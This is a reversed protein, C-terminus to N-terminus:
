SFTVEVFFDPRHNLFCIREEALIVVKNNTFYDLHQDGVRIVTQERDLLQGGIKYAGVLAKLAPMSRTKIATLGWPMYMAPDKLPDVDYHNDGTTGGGARRLIANWYDQPNIAVADPEGDVLEIKPIAGGIGSLNDGAPAAYTQLGTTQRIGRLDPANGSGNLVQEEERLMLMYGLRMDIYSRLTPADALIETTAPIWAAIKRAPADASVWQMQVEPKLTGEAVSTAGSENTRPNLERIYPVSNLGTTGTSLVDRIFLRRRDIAAPLLFPTGRPMFLGATATDTQSTTLLTRVEGEFSGRGGRGAWDAYGDADTFRAGASRVDVDGTHAGTGADPGRSGAQRTTVDDEALSARIRLMADFQTDTSTLEDLASRVDASFTEGRKDAPLARLEGVKTVAGFCADRLDTVRKTAEALDLTFDGRDNFRRVGGRPMALLLLVLFMLPALLHTLM